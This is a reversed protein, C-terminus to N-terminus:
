FIKTWLIIIIILFFFGLNDTNEGSALSTPRRSIARNPESQSSLSVGDRPDEGIVARSGCPLFSTLAPNQSAGCPVLVDPSLWDSTNICELRESDDASSKVRSEYHDYTPTLCSPEPPGKVRAASSLRPPDVQRGPSHTHTAPRQGM